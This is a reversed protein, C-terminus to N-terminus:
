ECSAGSFDLCGRRVAGDKAPLGISAPGSVSQNEGFSFTQRPLFLPFPFVGRQVM